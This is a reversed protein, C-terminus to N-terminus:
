KDAGTAALIAQLDDVSVGDFRHDEITEVRDGVANAGDRRMHGNQEMCRCLAAITKATFVDKATFHLGRNTGMRVMRLVHMSNGGLEIFNDEVGVPRMLLLEEWIEALIRESETTPPAYGDRSARSQKPLTAAPATSPANRGAVTADALPAIRAAAARLRLGATARNQGAPHRPLWGLWSAEPLGCRVSFKWPRNQSANGGAVWPPCPWASTESSRRAFSCLTRGPGLEVGLCRQAFLTRLCQAFRITGRLQRLWYEPTAMSADAWTGTLNSVVPLQPPRMPVRELEDRFSPLAADMFSSHFAGSTKILTGQEGARALFEACAELYQRQGSLVCSSSTNAAALEV